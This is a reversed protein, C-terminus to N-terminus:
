SCISAYTRRLSFQTVVFEWVAWLAWAIAPWLLTKLRAIAGTKRLMLYAAFFLGSVLFITAPNQVFLALIAQM